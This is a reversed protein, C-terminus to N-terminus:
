EGLTNIFEISEELGKIPDSDKPVVFEVEMIIGKPNPSKKMLIDYCEKLEVDGSGLAAGDLEFHLTQPNPKVFHDKFHTGITYPAAAEFAEIPREGILFTNGTDLFIHLNPTMQCLTAYDSCYYDGHNEVALPFGKSACVNAMPAMNKALIKLKNELPMVRDFRHGAGAGTTTIKTSFFRKYKAFSVEWKEAAAKAEDLSLSLFKEHVNPHFGVESRESLAFLEELEKGSMADLATFSLPLCDFGFEKAFKLQSIMTGPEGGYQQFEWYWPGAFSWTLHHNIKTTM